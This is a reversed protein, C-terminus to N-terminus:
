ASSFSIAAWELTRTQLVGPVLSGLPSGAIPDCLTPRSKAAAAPNWFKTQLPNCHLLFHCRSPLTDILHSRTQRSFCSLFFNQKNLTWLKKKFQITMKKKLSFYCSHTKVLTFTRFKTKCICVCMVTKGPQECPLSDAQSTPSRPETQPSLLDGPPPCPWGGPITAQLLGMSLPAQHSRVRSLSKLVTCSARIHM